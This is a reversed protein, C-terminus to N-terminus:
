NQQKAYQGPSQGVYKRFIRIFTNTNNCGVRLAVDAIKVQESGLIEKAKRVRHQNLYDKFNQGTYQKFVTSIYGPSFHHHSSLDTLSLDEHYHEHIYQLLREVLDSDAGERERNIEDLLCEFRNRINQQWNSQQSEPHIEDLEADEWQMDQLNSLQLIREITAHIALGFRQLSQQQPVRQKFNIDFLRDLIAAVEERKGQQVSSILDRETDLPYYYQGRPATDVDSYAIVTRKDLFSRYELARVASIYSQGIEELAQAPAGVGATIAITYSSEIKSETYILAHQVERKVTDTCSEHMLVAFRKFDLAVLQCDRSRGLQEDIAHMHQSKMDLLTSRSYIANLETYNSLELVVATWPSGPLQLQLKNMRAEIQEATLLGHLMDRLFMDKLPAREKLMMSKLQENARRIKVATRSIFAMEDLGENNDFSNFMAVVRGIPRYMTRSLMYAALMGLLLCLFTAAGIGILQPQLDAFFSRKPVAYGYKWGPLIVSNAIHLQLGEHEATMFSEAVPIDYHAITEGLSPYEEQLTSAYLVAGEPNVVYFAEESERSLGPMIFSDYFSTFFILDPGTFQPTRTVFTMLFGNEDGGSGKIYATMEEDLGSYRNKMPIIIKRSDEFAMEQDYYFRGITNEPKIVLSDGARTLDIRIGLDYFTSNLKELEKYVTTINYYNHRDNQVYSKVAQSAQLQHILSQAIKFRNDLQEAMGLLFSEQKNKLELGVIETNKYLFVGAAILTYLVIIVLYAALLKMFFHKKRM